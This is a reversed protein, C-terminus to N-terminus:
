IGITEFYPLRLRRFGEFGTWPQLPTAKDKVEM